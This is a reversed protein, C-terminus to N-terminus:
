NFTYNFVSAGGLLLIRTEIDMLDNDVRTECGFLSSLNLTCAEKIPFDVFRGSLFKIQCGGGLTALHWTILIM